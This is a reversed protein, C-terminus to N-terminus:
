KSFIPSIVDIHYTITDWAATINLLFIWDINSIINNGLAIVIRNVTSQVLAMETDFNSSSLSEAM